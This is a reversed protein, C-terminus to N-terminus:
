HVGGKKMCEGQSSVLRSLLGPFGVVRRGRRTAPICKQLHRSATQTPNTSGSFMSLGEAPGRPRGRRPFLVGQGSHVQLSGTHGAADVGLGRNLYFHVIRLGRVQPRLAVWAPRRSVPHGQRVLVRLPPVCRSTLPHGALGHWLNSSLGACLFQAPSERFIRTDSSDLFVEFFAWFSCCCVRPLSGRLLHALRVRRIVM